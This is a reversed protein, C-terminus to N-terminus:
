WSGGGGGGFGGGSSGGNMGSGGSSAEFGQKLSSSLASTTADVGKSIDHAVFGSMWADSQIAHLQVAKAWLTDVKLAIAWPLLKMFSQPNLEPRNHFIMRDKEVVSIFEKLGLVQEKLLAGQKTRKPLIFGFGVFIVASFFLSVAMVLSYELFYFGIVGVVSGVLVFIGSYTRGRADTFGLQQVTKMYAQQLGFLGKGIKQVDQSFDVTKGDSFLVGDLEKLIAHEGDYPKLQTVIVGIKKILGDAEKTEIRVYGMEALFMLDAVIDHMDQKHDVVLGAQGPTVSVPPEYEAIITGRGKEDRGFRYWVRFMFVFVVIPIFVFWNDQFWWIYQSVVRPPNFVGKPVSVALTLGEQPHLRDHQVIIQSFIGDPLLKKTVSDCAEQSGLRGSVCRANVQSGAVSAGLTVTVDVNDIGFVWDPGVANWFLEDTVDLYNIARDVTYFIDYVQHGSVVVDADGIKIVYEGSRKRTQFSQENGDDDLVRFDTMRLNYTTGNREYSYPINRILGHRTERGFDMIIRERVFLRSHDDVHLFIDYDAIREAFVDPVHVFFLVVLFLPTLVFYPLKKYIGMMYQAM